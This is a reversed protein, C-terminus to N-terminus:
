SLRAKHGPSADKGFPFLSVWGCDAVFFDLYKQVPEFQSGYKGEYFFCKKWLQDGGM